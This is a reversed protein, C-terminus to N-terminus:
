KVTVQISKTNARNRNNVTESVVQNKVWVGVRRTWRLHETGQESWINVESEM